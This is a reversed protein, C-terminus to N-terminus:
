RFFRSRSSRPRRSRLCPDRDGKFCDGAMMASKGVAAARGVIGGGGRDDDGILSPM